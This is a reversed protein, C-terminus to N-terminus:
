GSSSGSTSASTTHAAVGTSPTEWNSAQSADNTKRWGAGSPPKVGTSGEVTPVHRDGAPRPSGAAHGAALARHQEWLQKREDTPRYRGSADFLISRVRRRMAARDRALSEGPLAVLALLRNEAADTAQKPTTAGAGPAPGGLVDDPYDRRSLRPHLYARLDEYTLGTGVLLDDLLDVLTREGVLELDRDIVPVLDGLGASPADTDHPDALRDLSVPRGRRAEIIALRWVESSYAPTTRDDDNLWTRTRPSAAQRRRQDRAYAAAALEPTLGPDGLDVTDTKV